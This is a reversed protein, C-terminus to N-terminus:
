RKGPEQALAQFIIAVVVLFISTAILAFDYDRIDSLWGLLVPGVVLGLDSIARYLGMGASYNNRPIIDTAYAAPVPGSVGIGLGLVLCSAILSTYSYSWSTMLLAGATILSGIFIIMKRGVRDSLRGSVFITAFQILAILTLTIGIEGEGLGLRNNGLLPLLVNQVGSRMFFIGLTVLCILMFDLSGLLPKLSQREAGPEAEAATLAPRTEPIRLYAWIAALFGLIAFTFFPARLGLYEATFGGLTPGLGVGLLLSGQYLSMVRGRNGTTSLDAIMVMAATTYLASGIGQISRFLVLQWFTTAFGCGLSAVALIIPGIILVPRRGLTQALRGAPIDALLRAVGFGTILLGVMTNSVGFSEGYQPLIPAVLGIGMMMLVVEVCLILLTENSKLFSSLAAETIECTISDSAGM